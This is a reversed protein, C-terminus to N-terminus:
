WVVLLREQRTRLSLGRWKMGSASLDAIADLVQKETAYDYSALENGTFPDQTRFPM